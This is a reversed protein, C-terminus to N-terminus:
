HHFMTFSTFLCYGLFCVEHSLQMIHTHSNILAPIILGKVIPKKKPNNRGFEIIKKNGFGIYGNKFGSKTLIEGSIYEM